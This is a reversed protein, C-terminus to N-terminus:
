LVMYPRRLSMRLIDNHCSTRLLDEPRFKLCHTTYMRVYNPSMKSRREWYINESVINSIVKLYLQVTQFFSIRKEYYCSFFFEGSAKIKRNSCYLRPTITASVSTTYSGPPNREAPYRGNDRCHWSLMLTQNTRDWSGSRLKTNCTSMTM